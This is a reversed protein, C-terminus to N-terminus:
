TASGNWWLAVLRRPFFLADEDLSADVELDREPPLCLRRRVFAV